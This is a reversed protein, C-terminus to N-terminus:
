QLFDEAQLTGVNGFVQRILGIDAVAPDTVRRSLTVVRGDELSFREINALTGTESFSIAVIQRDMTEPARMGRERRRSAVYFWTDDQQLGESSPTGVAEAVTDQSDQGVTLEALQLETPAYGHNRVIPSCATAVVALLAALGGAM